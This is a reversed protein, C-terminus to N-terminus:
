PTPVCGASFAVSKIAQNWGAAMWQYGENTPHIGDSSITPLTGIFPPIISLDVISFRPGYIANVDQVVQPVGKALLIGTSTFTGHNFNYVFPNLPAAYGGGFPIIQAVIIKTSPSPYKVVLADLLQRLRIAALAAATSNPVQLVDHILDNTGGHVLVINPPHLAPLVPYFTGVAFALEDLRYGPVGSHFRNAILAANQPIVPIPGTGPDSWPGYNQTFYPYPLQDDHAGVLQLGYVPPALAVWSRYGQGRTNIIGSLSTSNVGATISDGLPEILCQAAAPSTFSMAAWCAATGLITGLFSRRMM